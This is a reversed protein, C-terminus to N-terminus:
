GGKKRAIVYVNDRNLLPAGEQPLYGSEEIIFGGQTVLNRLNTIDFLHIFDPLHDVCSSCWTKVDDIEGPYPFNEKQKEEYTKYFFEFSERYPTATLIFLKGGPRLWTHFRELAKKVEIGSLMIFLRSALISDLSEKQICLDDLFNGPILISNKKHSNPILTYAVKLHRADLDNILVIKNKNSTKKLIEISALGFGAGVELSPGAASSSFDIYKQSLKDEPKSIWGMKNFTPYINLNAAYVKQSFDKSLALFSFIFFILIDFRLHHM